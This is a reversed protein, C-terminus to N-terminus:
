LSMKGYSKVDHVTLFCIVFPGPVWHVKKNKTGPSDEKLEAIKVYVDDDEGDQKRFM